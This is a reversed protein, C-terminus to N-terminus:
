VDQRGEAVPKCIKNTYTNGKIGRPYYQVCISQHSEHSYVVEIGKAIIHERRQNANGTQMIIMYGGNGRKELLRGATTDERFPAVVELFDGGLPM